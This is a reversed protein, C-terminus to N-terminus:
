GLEFSSIGFAGEPHPYRDAGRVMLTTRWTKLPKLTNFIRMAEPHDAFVGLYVVGKGLSRLVARLLCDADRPGSTCEWPGIDYGAPTTRGMAFGVLRGERELKWSHQPYQALLLRLLKERRDGFLREDMAQIDQLDDSTMKSCQNHSPGHDAESLIARSIMAQNKENFGFKKYVPLGEATAYLLISDVGTAECYEVARKILTQGIKKGRAHESVVLHGIVGTSHYTVTTIVGLVDKDGYLFSGDPDMLLMRELEVRTYGWGERNIMTLVSDIDGDRMNRLSLNVRGRAKLALANELIYKSSDASPKNM